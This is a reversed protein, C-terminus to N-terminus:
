PRLAADTKAAYYRNIARTLETMTTRMMSITAQLM